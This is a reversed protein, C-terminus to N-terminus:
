NALWCVGRAPYSWANGGRGRTHGFNDGQIRGKTLMASMLPQSGVSPGVSNAAVLMVLVEGPTGCFGMYSHGIRDEFARLQLVSTKAHKGSSPFTGPHCLAQPATM